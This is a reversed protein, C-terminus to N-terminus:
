KRTWLVSIYDHSGLGCPEPDGSRQYIYDGYSKINTDFVIENANRLKHITDIKSITQISGRPINIIKNDYNLFYKSDFIVALHLVEQKTYDSLKGSGLCIPCITNEPFPQPGSGNYRNSSLLSISDFICNNCLIENSANNYKLLCPVTLANASLLSDIAQNFLNKFNSDILNLNSM